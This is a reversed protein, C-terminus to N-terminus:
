KANKEIDKTIQRIVENRQETANYHKWPTWIITGALM